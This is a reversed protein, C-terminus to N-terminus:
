GGLNLWKMLGWWLLLELGLLIAVTTLATLSRTKRLAKKHRIFLANSYEVEFEEVSKGLNWANRWIDRRFKRTRSMANKRRPIQIQNRM